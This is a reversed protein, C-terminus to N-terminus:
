GQGPGTAASAGPTAALDATITPDADEEPAPQEAEPEIIEAAATFVPTIREGGNVPTEAVQDAVAGPEYTSAVDDAPLDIFSLLAGSAELGEMQENEAAEEESLGVSEFAASSFEENNSLAAATLVEELSADALADTNLAADASAEGVVPSGAGAVVRSELDSAASVRASYEAHQEVLDDLENQRDDIEDIVDNRRADIVAQVNGANVTAPDIGAARLLDMHDENEPNFQGSDM